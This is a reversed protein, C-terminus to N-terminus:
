MRAAPVRRLHDSRRGAAQPDLSPPPGSIALSSIVPVSEGNWNGAVIPARSRELAPVISTLLVGKQADVILYLRSGGDPEYMGPWSPKFIVFGHAQAWEARDISKAKAVAERPEDALLYRNTVRDYWVSYHDCGPVVHKETGGPFGRTRSAAPRLKTANMFQFTRAAACVAHRARSQTRAWARQALHNSGVPAFRALAVHNKLEDTTVLDSWVSDLRLTVTERGQAGSNRERWYTTLFVRQGSRRLAGDNKFEM